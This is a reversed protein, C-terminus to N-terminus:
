GEAHELLSQQVQPLNKPDKGHAAGVQSRVQHVRLGPRQDRAGHGGRSYGTTMIM